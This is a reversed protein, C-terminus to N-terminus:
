SPYPQFFGELSFTGHPTQVWKDSVVKKVKPLSLHAHDALWPMNLSELPRLGTDLFPRRQEIIAGTVTELLIRRETIAKILSKASWIKRELYEKAKRDIDPQRYLKLYRRSILLKSVWGDLHRAEYRGKGTREIAIDPEVQLAQGVKEVARKKGTEGEWELVPNEQLERQVREKLATISLRLIEMFPKEIM